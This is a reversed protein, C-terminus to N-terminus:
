LAIWGGDVVLTAGTMFRAEDSALYLAANAIDRPEAIYEEGDMRLPTMRRWNVQLEENSRFHVNIHTKTAGPCLANVNVGLHGFEGALSRAMGIVAAKGACYATLEPVGVLGFNSAIMIVKGYGAGAMHRLAAQACLFTGRVNLAFHRDWEGIDVQRSDGQPGVNGAATLIVHLGGFGDLTEGVLRRAQDAETVDTRIFAARGGAGNIVDQTPEGGERPDDRIDAIVVSAGEEAFRLASARGIGSSAGTVVAVKGDLRGGV